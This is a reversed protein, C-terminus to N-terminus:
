VYDDATVGRDSCGVLGRAIPEEWIRALLIVKARSKERVAKLITVLRGSLGWIEIAILAFPRNAAARIGDSADPCVEVRGTDLPGTDLFLRDKHGIVLISNDPSGGGFVENGQTM